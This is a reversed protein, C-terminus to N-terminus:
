CEVFRKLGVDGCDALSLFVDHRGCAFGSLTQGNKPTNWWWARLRPLKARWNRDTTCHVASASM